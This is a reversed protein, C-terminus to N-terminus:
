GYLWPLVNGPPSAQQALRVFADQVLDEACDPWQRAYLLLAPAHARYLGCLMVPDIPPM